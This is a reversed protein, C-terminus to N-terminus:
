GGGVPPIVAIEDAVGVAADPDVYERNVAIRTRPLLEGLGPHLEGLRDLVARATAPTELALAIRDTGAAERAPGYLLVTVEIM